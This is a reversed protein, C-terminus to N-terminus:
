AFFLDVIASSLRFLVCRVENCRLVSVSMRLMQKTQRANQETGVFVNVFAKFIPQCSFLLHPSM